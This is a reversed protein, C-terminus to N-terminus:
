ELDRYTWAVRINCCGKSDLHLWARIQDNTHPFVDEVAPKLKNEAGLAFAM